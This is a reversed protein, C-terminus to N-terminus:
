APWEIRVKERAWEHFARHAKQGRREVLDRATDLQKAGDGDFLGRTRELLEHQRAARRLAASEDGSVV